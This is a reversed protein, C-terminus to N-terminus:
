LWSLWLWLWVTLFTVWEQWLVLDELLLCVFFSFFFCESSWVRVQNWHLSVYIYTLTDIMHLVIAFMYWTYRDYITGYVNVSALGVGVLRKWQPPIRFLLTKAMTGSPLPDEPVRTGSGESESTGPIRGACPFNQDITNSVRAAM